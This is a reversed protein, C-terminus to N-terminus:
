DLPLDNGRIRISSDGGVYIANQSQDVLVGLDVIEGAHIALELAAAISDGNANEYYLTMIGDLAPFPDPMVFTGEADTMGTASAVTSPRGKRYTLFNPSDFQATVEMDALPYGDGDVFTGEMGGARHLRVRETNEGALMGYFPATRITVYGKKSILASYVMGEPIFGGWWYPIHDHKRAQAIVTDGELIEVKANKLSMVDPGNIEWGHWFPEPIRFNVMQEGGPKMAIRIGLKRKLLSPDGHSYAPWIKYEGREVLKLSFERALEEDPSRERNVTVFKEMNSDVHEFMIRVHPMSNGTYSGNLTGSISMAEAPPFVVGTWSKKEGPFLPGISEALLTPSEGSRYAEGKIQVAFDPGANLAPLYIEGAEDSISHHTVATGITDHNSSVEPNLAYDPEAMTRPYRAELTVEAGMMPQGDPDVINATVYAQQMLNYRLIAGDFIQQRFFIAKGQERTHVVFAGTGSMPLGMHFGGSSDVVTVMNKLREGEFWICEVVANVPADPEYLHIRGSVNIGPKLRFSLNEIKDGQKLALSQGDTQYGPAWVSLISEGTPTGDSLRFDTNSFGFSGDFGTLTTRSMLESGLIRHVDGERVVRQGRLGAQSILDVKAGVIPEGREDEVRGSVSPNIRNKIWIGDDKSTVIEINVKKSDSRQQGNLLSSKDNMDKKALQIIEGDEITRGSFEEDSIRAFDDGVLDPNGPADITQSVPNRDPESSRQEFLAIASVIVGGVIMGLGAKGALSMGGATTAAAVTKTGAGALALKNVNLIVAAPASEILKSGLVATVTASLATVGHTRLQSRLVEVAKTLRLRVTSEALGMDAAIDTLKRNEFFRAVILGRHDDPLQEVVEDVLAMLEVDTIEYSNTLSDAYSHDRVARRGRTKALDLARRTAVTHLWPALSDSVHIKAKMLQVFCEQAADEADAKNALIRRCTGYVMGSHRALLESFANADKERRWSNWLASDTLEM